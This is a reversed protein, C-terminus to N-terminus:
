RPWDPLTDLFEADIKDLWAHAGDIKRVVVLPRHKVFLYIVGALAILPSLFVALMIVQAASEEVQAAMAFVYGVTALIAGAIGGGIMLWGIVATKRQGARFENSVPLMLTVKKGYMAKAIMHGILGFMGLWLTHGPVWELETRTPSGDFHQNTKICKPPFRPNEVRVVLLKGERWLGDRNDPVDASPDAITQPSQYPNVEV